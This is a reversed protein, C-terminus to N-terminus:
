RAPGGPPPSFDPRPGDMSTLLALDLSGTAQALSARAINWDFTAQVQQQRARAHAAQATLVDLISGVGAQYRGLAVREASEASALLDRTTRVSQIATVLAQYSRWVDLSAQLRVRDRLAVQAEARAEAARTRYTPAYGSFLPVNLNVGLTGSRTVPGNGSDQLGATAFLSVTPRGSARAAAISAEAARVEAEAALLDPRRRSAEAILAGVDAAYGEDPPPQLSPVLVLPQEASLALVNALGGRAGKLDGDARIRDLVAQSYATQAQLRDSPTATGVEHRVTAARLAEQSSRESNLAAALAADRTHVLYFAQLANFFVEQVANDQTASASALVQRAIELNADRAGFDYLLWSVTLEARTQTTGESPLGGGAVQSRSVVVDTDVTPLFAGRALGVEAARARASAWAERTQPNRCLAQDVVDVLTLPTSPLGQACIDRTAEESSRIGPRAPTLKETDLPDAAIPATRAPSAQVPSPALLPVVLTIALTVGAGLAFRGGASRAARRWLSLLAAATKM